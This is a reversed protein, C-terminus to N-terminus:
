QLKFLGLLILICGPLASFQRGLTTAGFGRGALLGAYMTVILGTGVLLATLILDLGLMSLAFGAGFADLALGLGLLIAEGASIIGSRDLDARHPEQLVQVMVALSRIRIQFLTQPEEHCAAPESGKKEEKRFAQFITRLGILILIIGGLHRAFNIPIARTVLNGAAMSLTIAIVSMLSIILVSSFPLRIGRVGYAVGTGFADMNLALAFILITFLEM